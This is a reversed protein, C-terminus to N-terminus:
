YFGTKVTERLETLVEPNRVGDQTVGLDLAAPCPPIRVARDREFMNPIFFSEDLRHFVVQGEEGYNVVQSLREKSPTLGDRTSVVQLIMRPGPPYYDLDFEESGEIELALGFLTNGYGSIHVASPFLEEKFRRLLPKEISVGGYHIGQIRTRMKEPMKAALELLTPPTAFIVGIEQTDLINLAQGVLHDLYRRYGMSDKKLKKAWRPDFDISFPEMSGVCRAVYGVAKGIIHPGSPGVWLWNCGKPFNRREAVVRFWDVFVTYFESFLYATVKPRGTTGATEGMVLRTKDKLIHRPIFHEIPYRRLDEEAMPGFKKLDELTRIERRADMGLEREKELWYPSGNQRDFHVSMIHALWDNVPTAFWGADELSYSAKDKHRSPTAESLREVNVDREILRNM